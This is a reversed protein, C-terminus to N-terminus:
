KFVKKSAAVVLQNIDPSLRFFLVMGGFVLLATSSKLFIGLLASSFDPFCSVVLYALGGIVLVWFVPWTLPQMKLKLWLLLFKFLNYLSLSVLTALAAGNITFIPIFLNSFGISCVALLIVLYFNYKYFKSYSIIETNVGTLMDFVRALGLILIVYKGQRFSEGNPMLTFVEDVSVWVALLLGLGVILQNLASKQYIEQIEDLKGANWKDSILPSSIRSIARRPADIADSLFFAVAYVGTDGLTAITGLMITNIREGIRSGLTGVLGYMGFSTVEKLLPKKLFSFDPRFHLQGLSAVYWIQGLLILGYFALQGWFIGSFDIWQLLLAGVLVAMGLKPVLENFISPVVIRQFNSAYSTFIAASTLLFALPLVFPLYDTFLESKEGYYTLVNDRFLFSLLLLTLIGVGFVLHLFFLYGRHGKEEDKFKPFFRVILEAGGWFLFPSVLVATDLVFRTIGIQEKTLALPYLVLLNVAGILMGVYTVVSQKIGQRKIVGMTNTSYFVQTIQSRFNLRM